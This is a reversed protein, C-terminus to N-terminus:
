DAPVSRRARGVVAPRTRTMNTVEFTARDDDDDDEDLDVRAEVRDGVLVAGVFRMEIEGHALFDDGWADLLM